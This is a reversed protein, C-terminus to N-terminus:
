FKLDFLKEIQLILRTNQDNHVVGNLYGDSESSSGARYLESDIEEIGVVKDTIFARYRNEKECIVIPTNLSINSAAMADLTNALDFVPVSIGHMNMIGVLNKPSNPLSQLTMMMVVRFIHDLEIFYHREAASCVLGALRTAVAM